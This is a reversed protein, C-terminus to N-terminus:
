PASGVDLWRRRTITYLPFVEGGEEVDGNVTMGIETAVRRSGENEEDILAILRDVGLAAFGYGAIACAAETALGRGWHASALLYAM